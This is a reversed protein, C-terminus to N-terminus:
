PDTLWPDDWHIPLIWIIATVEQAVAEGRQSPLGWVFSVRVIAKGAYAWTPVHIVVTDTFNKYTCLRGGSIVRTLSAIGIPVQLEDQITAYMTVTHARMSKTGYKVTIKVDNSKYYELKDTTVSWIRILYDYDFEMIDTIVVDALTVSVMVGWGGLLEDASHGTWPMRFGVVAHGDECTDNQLVAWLKGQGFQGHPFPGRIEFTVKKYSVPQWNYTVKAVIHLKMQPLVLDAPTGPGQGGLPPDLMWVDIVRGTPAIPLIKVTGDVEPGLPITGPEGNVSMYEFIDLTTIYTTVWSQKLPKFTITALIGTGKPGTEPVDGAVPWNTGDPSPLILVGVLVHKPYPPFAPEVNGYFWTGYTAFQAMYPGENISLVQLLTPDYKLRFQVGVLKWGKHLRNMQVGVTFTKGFQEGIVLDPGLTIVPPEVSLWALPLVLKAYVFVEGDTSPDPIIRGAHDFLVEDQLDLKSYDYSGPLPPAPAPPAIKQTKVTFKITAILVNGSLSKNTRVIIDIRDPVAPHTVTVSYPRNWAATNITINAAETDIVTTNFKLAFTANTIAWGVDLNLIWVEANFQKGVVWETYMSPNMIIKNDGDTPDIVALKPKTVPPKWVWTYSGNTKIPDNMDKVPPVEVDGEVVFTDDNNINLVCSLTEYKAPAKIIKFEILALKFPGAGTHGAVAGLKSDGAKAYNPGFATVPVGGWIALEEPALVIKTNSLLLPDYYLQVQWAYLDAINKVWVTVNWAFDMSPGPPTPPNASPTMYFEPTVAAHAPIIAMMSLFLMAVMSLVLSSSKRKM